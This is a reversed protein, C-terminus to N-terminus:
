RGSIERQREKEYLEHAKRDEWEPGITASSMVTLAHIGIAIGWGMAPWYAWNLGSGTVLDIFVLGVCVLLYVALHGYFDRLERARARAREMAVDRHEAM